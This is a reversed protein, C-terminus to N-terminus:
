ITLWRNPLLTPVEQELGITRLMQAFTKNLETTLVISDMEIQNIPAVVTKPFADAHPPVSHAVDGFRVLVIKANDHKTRYAFVRNRPDQVDNLYENTLLSGDPASIIPILKRDARLIFKPQRLFSM